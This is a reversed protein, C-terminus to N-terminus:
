FQVATDPVHQQREAGTCNGQAPTSSACSNIDALSCVPRGLYSIGANFPLVSLITPVAFSAMASIIPSALNCSSPLVCCRLPAASSLASWLSILGNRLSSLSVYDCLLMAAESRNM